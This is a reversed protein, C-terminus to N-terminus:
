EPRLAIRKLATVFAALAWVNPYYLVTNFVGAVLFGILSAETAHALYFLRETEGQSLQEVPRDSSETAQIRDAIARRVSRVNRLFCFVMATWIAAGLVGLESLLTVYISHAVLGAQSKGHLGEDFGSALEYNRFEFAFNGQGVGVLPSDRFMRLGIDWLYMRQEGTPDSTGQQITSIEEWYADPALMALFVALVGLVMMSVLKKPSRVWCYLGVIVLGLFGARSFTLISTFAFLGTLVTYILRKTTNREALLMFFAFPLVMNLGMAFDNEEGLFSGLGVAEQGVLIGHIAHYVHIGLWMTILTRLRAFTDVFTIISLYVAFTMAMTRAIHFAAYTNLAVPLHFAMLALLLIFLKTETESLSLRKSFFILYALTATVLGPLHLAALTPSLEHPRAFELVLYLIVIWFPASATSPPADGGVAEVAAARRSVAM